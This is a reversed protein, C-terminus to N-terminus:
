AVTPPTIAALRGEPMWVASVDDHYIVEVRREASGFEALIAVVKCEFGTLQDVYKGGLEVMLKEQLLNEIMAAVTENNEM